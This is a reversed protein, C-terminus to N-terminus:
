SSVMTWLPAFPRLPHRNDPSFQKLWLPKGSENFCATGFLAGCSTFRELRLEAFCGSSEVPLQWLFPAWLRRGHSIGNVFLEAPLDETEAVLAVKGEPLYCHSQQIIRGCYGVLGEGDNKWRRLAGNEARAFGGLLVASPLYPYDSVANQLRLVHKGPSLSFLATEEYLERFGPLMRTCPTVTKLAVGDLELQPTLACSRIAWCLSELPEEVSFTFAGDVFDARLTNPSDLEVHWQETLVQIDNYRKECLVSQEEDSKLLVMGASEVVFPLQRRKFSLRLSRKKECFNLILFEGNEASCVFIDEALEGSLEKVQVERPFHSLLEEELTFFDFFDRNEREEHIMGKACSLVVPCQTEEGPLLLCWSYQRATLLKLLETLPEGTYPYRVAIMVRKRLAAFDAARRAEDGLERFCPFYPQTSTLPNFYFPKEINGAATLPSVALVFHDVGFAACLWLQRRMKTLTLDAPGLAFLEALGGYGGRKEIAHRVTGLTLWEIMGMSGRTFIEDMGPLSFAPLVLLPHGNCRLAPAAAYENMLHGTMVLNREECWHSIRVAYSDRFKEGYLRNCLAEWPTSGTKLGRLIDARLSGGSIRRYDEELGDYYPLTLSCGNPCGAFYAIDPEDSFFGKILRGFWKGLHKEYQEHTLHIFFDVADPNFLDSMATGKCVAFEYEEKGPARSVTLINIAFEPRDKFVRTRCSGSPWNYEDYIWISSFGIREAECCLHSCLAFWEDSLYQVECGSRPYILFQTVGVAYWNELTETIFEPSPKGTIAMMPILPCEVSKRM